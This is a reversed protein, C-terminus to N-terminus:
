EPQSLSPGTINALLILCPEIMVYILLHDIHQWDSNLLLLINIECDVTCAGTVYYAEIM